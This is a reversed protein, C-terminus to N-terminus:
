GMFFDGECFSIISSSVRVLKCICYQMIGICIFFNFDFFIDVFNFIDIEFFVNEKFYICFIFFGYSVSVNSISDVLNIELFVVWLLGDVLLSWCYDVLVVLLSFSGLDFLFSLIDELIVNWVFDFGVNQFQIIYDILWYWEIYYQDFFGLLIVLKDNFDYFGIVEGCIIVEFFNGDEIYLLNGLLLFVFDIGMSCQNSLLVILGFYFYGLM